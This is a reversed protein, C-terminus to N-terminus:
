AKRDVCSGKQTRRGPEKKGRAGNVARLLATAVWRGEEQGRGAGLERWIKKATGKNPRRCCMERERERELQRRLAVEGAEGELNRGADKRERGGELGRPVISQIIGRRWKEWLCATACIGVCWAWRVGGELRREGETGKGSTALGGASGWPDFGRGQGM